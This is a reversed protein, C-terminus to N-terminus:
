SVDRWIHDYGSGDVFLGAAKGLAGHYSEDQLVKANAEELEALNDYQVVWAIESFNGGIPLLVKVEKGVVRSVVGAIEMAFATADMQKGAVATSRRLFTIM